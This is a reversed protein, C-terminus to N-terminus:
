AELSEIDFGEVREKKGSAPGDLWVGFVAQGSTFPLAGFGGDPESVRFRRGRVIVTKGTIDIGLANAM